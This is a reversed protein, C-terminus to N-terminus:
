PGSGGVSAATMRCARPMNLVGSACTGRKSVAIRLHYLLRTSIPHARAAAIDLGHALTRSFDPMAKARRRSPAPVYAKAKRKGATPATQAPVASAQGNARPTARKSLRPMARRCSSTQLGHSETDPWWQWHPVPVPRSGTGTFLPWLKVPNRMIGGFGRWFLTPGPPSKINFSPMAQSPPSKASIQRLNPPSKTAM